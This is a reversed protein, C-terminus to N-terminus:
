AKVYHVFDFDFAHKEDKEHHERSKEKWEQYDPFFTDAHEPVDNVETLILEDAFGLCQEYVKGGGLIFVKEDNQCASLAEELSHYVECGELTINQQTLVVNKRNPLAGKPLSEFTNRGM